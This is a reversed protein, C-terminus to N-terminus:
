KMEVYIKEFDSKRQILKGILSMISTQGLDPVECFTRTPAVYGGKKEKGKKQKLTKKEKGNTM